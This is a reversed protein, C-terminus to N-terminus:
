EALTITAEGSARDVFCEGNRRVGEANFVALSVRFRERTAGEARARVRAPTPELQALAAAECIAEARNVTVRAYAPTAAAAFVLAAALAPAVYRSLKM